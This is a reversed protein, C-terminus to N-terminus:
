RTYEVGYVGDGWSDRQVRVIRGSVFLNTSGETYPAAVKISAGVPYISQSRFCIGGRSVNILEVVEPKSGPMDMCAKAKRMTIRRSRRRKIGTAVPKPMIPIKFQDCHPVLLPDPAIPPETAPDDLPGEDMEIPTFLRTGFSPNM